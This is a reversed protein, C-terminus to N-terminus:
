TNQKEVFAKFQDLWKQVQKKFMGPFLKAMLKIVFGNFKIYHIEQELRTKNSDIKKFRCSMTNVMHKHEYNAKFEEPLQNRIITEVLELKEYTLKSKSGVEGPTGSLPVFSLFGDQWEKLNDPNEFLEVVKDIPANIDTHCTFRM